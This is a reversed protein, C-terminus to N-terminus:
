QGTKRNFDVEYLQGSGGHLYTGQLADRKRDYALTYTSGEYNVDRLVIMVYLVGNQEATTTSEVKIPQPNFYAAQLSGDQGRALSILYPGDTRQWQGQIAQMNRSFQEGALSTQWGCFLVMALLIGIRKVATVKGIM